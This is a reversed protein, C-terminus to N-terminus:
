RICNRFNLQKEVIKRKYKESYKVKCKGFGGEGITLGSKWLNM